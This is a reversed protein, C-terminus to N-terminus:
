YQDSAQAGRGDPAQRQEPLGARGPVRKRTVGFPTATTGTRSVTMGFADYLVADTVTQSSNTVTRESGQGDFLPVESDKRILGEGYSYVAALV